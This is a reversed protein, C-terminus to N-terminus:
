EVLTAALAGSRLARIKEVLSHLRDQVQRTIRNRELDGRPPRFLTFQEAHILALDFEKLVLTSAFEELCRAGAFCRHRVEGFPSLTFAALSSLHAQGEPANWNPVLFLREVGGQRDWQVLVQDLIKERPLFLAFQRLFESLFPLGLLPHSALSIKQDSQHYGNLVHWAAVRLPDAHSYLRTASSAPTARSDGAPGASRFEVQLAWIEEGASDRDRLYRALPLRRTDQLSFLYPVKDPGQELYARLTKGMVTLDRESIRGAEATAKDRLSRYTTLFYSLIRGALRTREEHTWQAFANLHVLEERQWGWKAALDTLIGFREPQRDLEMGDLCKILFCEEMLRASEPAVTSRRVVQILELYPDIRVVPESALIKQKLQNCLLEAGKGSTYHELLGIKLVSKFPSHLGKLLQWLVAGFVEGTAFGYAHGIDLMKESKETLSREFKQKDYGAEDLDLPTSWYKPYKGALHIMSRYFEDKLLKGLASGCSEGGLEGYDNNRLDTIDTAFFHVEMGYASAAWNEILRIKEQLLELERPSFRRKEIGIWFDMDSGASFALTGASGMLCLFEIACRKPVLARAADTVKRLNAFYRLGREWEEADPLYGDIGFLKDGAFDPFLLSGELHFLLPFLLLLERQDRPLQALHFERRLRNEGRMKEFNVQFTQAQRKKGFM